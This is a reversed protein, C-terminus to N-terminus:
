YVIVSEKKTHHFAMIPVKSHFALKKTVSKNFLKDLINRHHTSLVLLETYGEELYEELKQEVSEGHMIQFSLNNYTISKQVEDKFDKMKQKEDDTLETEETIHLINLQAKFPKALELIEKLAEIDSAHYDTAYTIKKITKASACEPIAIVPCSAKEIVRATNSGFITGALGSAGKTGMVVLDVDKEEITTLIADVALDQRSIYECKINGAHAVKTFLSQLREDSKKATDQIEKEILNVPVYSNAYDIHYAHLLILKANEHKALDIAYDLAYSANESFDTPVLITKM